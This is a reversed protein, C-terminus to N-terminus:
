GLRFPDAAAFAVGDFREQGRVFAVAHQVDVGAGAAEHDADLVVRVREGEGQGDDVRARVRRVFEEGAVRRGVGLAVVEVDGLGLAFDESDVVSENEGDSLM